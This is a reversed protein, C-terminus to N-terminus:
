VTHAPLCNAIKRPHSEFMRALVHLNHVVAIRRLDFLNKRLGIYRARDGQWQGIHALSHEVSVRKRLQQRGSSTTQRERLEQLLPEDPHISISRGKPSVTCQSVLPCAQCQQPPFQVKKGEVFPISLNNPCRILHNSWDIHFATKDFKNGNRVPWAKCFITLNAKREKVWHSNLYARDIHLEELVVQQSALDLAIAETVSAEAQNAPTIGVARIM